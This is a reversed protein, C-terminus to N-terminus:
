RETEEAMRELKEEMRRLEKAQERLKGARDESRSISVGLIPEGSKNFLKVSLLKGSEEQEVRVGVKRKGWIGM